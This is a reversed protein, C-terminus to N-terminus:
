DVNPVSTQSLRNGAIKIGRPLYSWRFASPVYREIFDQLTLIEILCVSLFGSSFIGKRQTLIQDSQNEDLPVETTTSYDEDIQAGYPNSIISINM